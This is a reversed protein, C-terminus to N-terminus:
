TARRNRRETAAQMMRRQLIAAFSPLRVNRKKNRLLYKLTPNVLLTATTRTITCPAWLLYFHNTAHGILALILYSLPLTFCGLWYYEYKEVVSVSLASCLMYKITTYIILEASEWIQLGIQLLVVSVGFEYIWKFFKPMFRFRAPIFDNDYILDLVSIGFLVTPLIPGPTYPSNMEDFFVFYQWVRVIGALCVCMLNTM